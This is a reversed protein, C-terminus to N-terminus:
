FYITLFYLLKCFAQLGTHETLLIGCFFVSLEIKLTTVCYLVTGVFNELSKCFHEVNKDSRVLKESVIDSEIIFPKVTHQALVSMVSNLLLLAVSSTCM